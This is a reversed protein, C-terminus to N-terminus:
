AMSVRGRMKEVTPNSESERRVQQNSSVCKLAHSSCNTQIRTVFRPKRLRAAVVLSSCNRTGCAMACCLRLSLDCALSKHRGQRPEDTKRRKGVRGPEAAGARRPPHFM